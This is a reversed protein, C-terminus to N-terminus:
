IGRRGHLLSLGALGLLMITAPEPVVVLTFQGLLDNGNGPANNTAQVRDRTGLSQGPSTWIYDTLSVTLNDLTFSLTGAGAVITGTLSRTSASFNPAIDSSNHPAFVSIAPAAADNIFLNLGAHSAAGGPQGYITFQHTGVTLPVNISAAAANGSNIFPGDIDHSAIAYLNFVGDGGLSNWFQGGTAGGSGASFQNLGTLAVDATAAEGAVLMAALVAICSITRRKM